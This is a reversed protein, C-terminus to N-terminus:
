LSKKYWERAKSKDKKVGKGQEYMIGLFMESSADNAEAAKLLYKLAIDYNQPIQKGQYAAM